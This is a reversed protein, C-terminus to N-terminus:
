ENKMIVEDGTDLWVTNFIERREPNFNLMLGKYNQNKINEMEALIKENTIPEPIKKIIDFFVSAAMYGELIFTSLPEGAKTTDTVFEKVLEIDSKIPDPTLQTNIFKIKKNRLFTKLASGSCASIGFLKKNFLFEMGLSNILNQVAVDSSLVIIAEPEFDLIKKVADKNDVSQALHSIEIWNKDKVLNNKNLIEFAKEAASKSFAEEKYFVVIKNPAYKELLYNTLVQAERDSSAFFHIVNKLDKQRYTPSTVEPLFVAIKNEKILQLYGRFQLSGVPCLITNIGSDILLKINKEAMDPSYKDDLHVLKIKKNNIGNGANIKKIVLHLGKLIDRSINALEGSFDMTTGILIESLKEKETIFEKQADTKQSLLSLQKKDFEKILNADKYYLDLSNNIPKLIVFADNKFQFIKQSYNTTGSITSWAVAGKDPFLEFLGDTKKHKTINNNDGNIIAIVNEKEIIKSFSRNFYSIRIFDNKNKDTNIYIAIPLSSLFKNIEEKLPIQGLIKTGSKIILEKKLGFNQWNEDIEYKGKIFFINKPNKEMLKLILTFTELIYPSNGLVNGNFLIFNDKKINLNKELIDLKILENLSRVLSHFAGGLETFIIFTSDKQATIKISNQDTTQDNSKLNSIKELLNKFKKYEWRDRQLTIKDYINQVFSQLRDPTQKKYFSTYDAKLWNKNDPEPYEPIKNAYHNIDDITQFLDIESNAKSNIFFLFTFILFLKNM